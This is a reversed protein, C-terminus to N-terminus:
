AAARQRERYFLWVPEHFMRGLSQLGPGDDPGGGPADAGAAGAPKQWTGGQVFALDVGSGPQLLLTWTRPRARPTACSWRSATARWSPPMASASNPM